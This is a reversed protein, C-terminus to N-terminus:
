YIKNRSGLIFYLISGFIPIILVIIVWLLKDNGYFQCRLIDILAILPLLIAPFAVILIIFLFFALTM